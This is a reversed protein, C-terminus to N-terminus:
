TQRCNSAAYAGGLRARRCSKRCCAPARVRLKVFRQGEANTSVMVQDVMGSESNRLSTSVDKKTFRQATGPAEEALPSTKGIIVDDGSRACCCSVDIDLLYTFTVPRCQSSCVWSASATSAGPLFPPTVAVTSTKGIFAKNVLCLCWLFCYWAEHSLIHPYLVVPYSPILWCGPACRVRTGPPAIGDDDLKDYTGHRMAVTVERNPREIVEQVLSGQKKEEAQARM